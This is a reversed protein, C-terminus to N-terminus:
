AGSEDNTVTWLLPEDLPTTPWETVFQLHEHVGAIDAMNTEGEGSAPSSNSETTNTTM